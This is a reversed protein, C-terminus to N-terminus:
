IMDDMSYMGAPKDKIFLAARLAGQAFIDKSFAGHSITITEDLGAFIVDHQVVINGGRVAQIGIENKNRKERKSHRDYIYEM